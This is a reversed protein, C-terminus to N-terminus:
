FRVGIPVVIKALFPDGVLPLHGELGVDFWDGVTVDMGLSAAARAAGGDLSAVPVAGYVAARVRLGRALHTGGGLAFEVESSNMPSVIPGTGSTAHHHGGGGGSLARGYGIQGTLFAEHSTWIVWLAPMLMAHGMGLDQKASGTPLSAALGAGGRLGDGAAPVFSARVDLFLDGLGFAEAGNRVLRYSPLAGRVRVGEHEWAAFAALGQYEGEFRANRYTATEGSVGLSVGM